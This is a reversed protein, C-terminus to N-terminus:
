AVVPALPMLADALEEAVIRHGIYTWDGRDDFVIGPGAYQQLAAAPDIIKLEHREILARINSAKQESYRADLSKEVLVIPAAGCGEIEKVLQGFMTGFQTGSSNPSFESRSQNSRRSDQDAAFLGSGDIGIVVINPVFAPQLKTLWCKADGYDLSEYAVTRVHAPGKRRKNLLLELHCEVHDPMGVCRGELRGTGILLVRWGGQDLPPMPRSLLGFENAFNITQDTQCTGDHRSVAVVSRPQLWTMVKLLQSQIAKQNRRWGTRRLVWNIARVAPVQLARPLSGSAMKYPAPSHTGQQSRAPRSELDLRLAPPQTRDHRLGYYLPHTTFVVIEGPRMKRMAAFLDDRHGPGNRLGRARYNSLESWTQNISNFGIEAMIGTYGPVLYADHGEYSLGLASEDLVHLPAWKGNHVVEDEDVAPPAVGSPASFFRFRGRFIEFNQAGYVSTHNHAASGPVRIGHSRLWEIEQVVAAAGDMRHDQYIFLPDTHLSVEHGKDQLDRYLPAMCEHRHFIGDAFMGYYFGTHLVYYTTPIGHARELEAMQGAAIIDGDIDHRISIIVKGAPFRRAILDEMTVFAVNPLSSLERLLREYEFLPNVVVKALGAGTTYDSSYNQYLANNINAQMQQLTLGSDQVRYPGVVAHETRRSPAVTM